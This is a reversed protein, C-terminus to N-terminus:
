EEGAAEREFPHDLYPHLGRVRLYVAVAVYVPMTFPGWREFQRVHVREHRRTRDLCDADRGLVVHGITVAAAPGGIVGRRLLWAAAGGHAEVCGGVVRARGGTLVAALVGLLGVATNPSAWLYRLLVLLATM